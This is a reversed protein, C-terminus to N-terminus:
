KTGEDRRGQTGRERMRKRMAAFERIPVIIWTVLIILGVLWVSWTMWDFMVQM